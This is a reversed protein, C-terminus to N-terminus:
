PETDRPLRPLPVSTWLHGLRSDHCALCAAKFSKPHVTHMVPSKHSAPLALVQAVWKHPLLLILCCREAAEEGSHQQALVKLYLLSTM